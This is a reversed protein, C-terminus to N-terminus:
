LRPEMAKDALVVNGSIDVNSVLYAAVSYDSISGGIFIFKVPNGLGDVLAHIKTNRGGRLM